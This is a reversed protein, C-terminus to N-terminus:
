RLGSRVRASPIAAFSSTMLLVGGGNDIMHLIIARACNFSGRVNSNFVMNFIEDTTHMLDNYGDFMGANSVLIDIRGFKEVAKDVMTKVENFQSVNAEILIANDGGGNIEKVLQVGQVKYKEKEAASLSM